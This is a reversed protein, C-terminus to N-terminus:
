YAVVGRPENRTKTASVPDDMFDYIARGNLKFINLTIEM